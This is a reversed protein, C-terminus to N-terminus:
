GDHINREWAEYRAVIWPVADIITKETRAPRAEVALSSLEQPDGVYLCESGATFAAECDRPDDGVYITRDLRLLQDRSAEYFLGPAPKRCSCGADWHHPCVYFRKIEIGRALLVECMQRNVADVADRSVIERAIGAQNSIVNFSFGAKTLVGLGELAGPAFQIDEFRHVYQARPPRVNITGDRDLLLVRKPTLYQETRKWRKPDSISHYQDGSIMGALDGQEALRQLVVSFSVDPPDILKLIRDREVVMYGIEVHDLGPATRSPDYRDVVGDAGPRINGNAKRNLLLSLSRGLRRHFSLLKELKFPIFNDSYLLMFQPDLLSHAEAVRRGTDWDVPGESYAIDVGFRRGDQFHSRIQAGRYGTLLVVKAIGQERLQEVLFELFPRGNIPIMPKPLTDTYPRLREGLGGCLIVAQRLEAM